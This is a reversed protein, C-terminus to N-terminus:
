REKDLRSCEAVITDNHLWKNKDPGHYEFIIATIDSDDDQERSEM